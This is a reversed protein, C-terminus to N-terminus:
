CVHRVRVAGSISAMFETNISEKHAAQIKQAVAAVRFTAM